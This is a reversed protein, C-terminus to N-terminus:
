SAGPFRLGLEAGARLTESLVHQVRAILWAQTLAGEDGGGASSHSDLRADFRASFGLADLPAYGLAVAAESRHHADDDDLVSETYGYGLAANFRLPATRPALVPVTDVAPLASEGHGVRPQPD